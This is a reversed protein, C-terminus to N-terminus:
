SRNDSIFYNGEENMVVQVTNGNISTGNFEDLPILYDEGEASVFVAKWSDDDSRNLQELEVPTLKRELSAPLEELRLTSEIATRLQDPSTTEYFSSISELDEKPIVHKTLESTEAQVEKGALNVAANQETTKAAIKVDEASDCGLLLVSAAAVVLLNKKM